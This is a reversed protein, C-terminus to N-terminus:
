PVVEYAFAVTPKTNRYDAPPVTEWRDSNDLVLVWEGASLEVSRETQRVGAVSGAAHPSWRDRFEFALFEDPPLLLVDIPPGRIVDISYVLTVATEAGFTFKAYSGENITVERDTRPGGGSVSACGALGAVVTGVGTGILRRRSLWMDIHNDYVLIYIHHCIM